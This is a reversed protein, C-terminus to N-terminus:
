NSSMSTNSFTYHIPSFRSKPNLFDGELFFLPTSFLPKATQAGTPSKKNAM